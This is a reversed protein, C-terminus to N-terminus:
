FLLSYSSIREQWHGLWFIKKPGRGEGRGEEGRGEEGEEEGKGEKGRGKSTSGM